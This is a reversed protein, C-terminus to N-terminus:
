DILTKLAQYLKKENQYLKNALQALTRYQEKRKSKDRITGIKEGVLKFGKALAHWAEIAANVATVAESTDIGKAKKGAEKLFDRFLIRFAAGGTGNTEICGHFFNFVM